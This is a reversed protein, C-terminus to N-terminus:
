SYNSLLSDPTMGSCWQNHGMVFLSFSKKRSKNLENIVPSYTGFINQCTATITIIAVIIIVTDLGLNPKISKFNTIGWALLFYYGGVRGLYNLKSQYRWLIRLILPTLNEM